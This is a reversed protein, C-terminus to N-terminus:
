NLAYNSSNVRFQNKNICWLQKKPNFFTNITIKTLLFWHFCCMVVVSYYYYVLFTCVQFILTYLVM